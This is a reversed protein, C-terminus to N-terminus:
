LLHAASKPAATETTIMNKSVQHAARMAKPM